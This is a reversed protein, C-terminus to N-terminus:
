KHFFCVSLPVGYAPLRKIFVYKTNDMTSSDAEESCQLLMTGHAEMPGTFVFGWVSKGSMASISYYDSYYVIVFMYAWPHQLHSVIVKLIKAQTKVLSDNSIDLLAFDGLFM